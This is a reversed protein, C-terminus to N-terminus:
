GGGAGQGESEDQSQRVQDALVPLLDLMDVTTGYQAINFIPADPDTNVAVIMEAGALSESHEPAGSIGLALYLKPKVSNGSKGVLRSIPLWNQDTVPRSAVVVAGMADALDHVLELNDKNQVGRGVAVLLEEKTIDVDGGAPEIYKRLRVRMDNIPPVEMRTVEPLHSNRGQDAKFNGPQLTVLVTTGPHDAQHIEGEALLKGGYVPSTYKLVGSEIRLSTCYGVMVVDQSAFRASLGACIDAGITTEGFLFLVPSESRIIQTLVQLYADWTFDQLAPHDYVLVKDAALDSALESVNNGLLVATVKCTLASALAQAQALAMYSIDAVKGKVHEILVFIEQSM